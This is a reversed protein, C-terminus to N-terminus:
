TILIFIILIIVSAISDRYYEEMNADLTEGQSISVEVNEQEFVFRDEKQILHEIIIIDKETFNFNAIAKKNKILEEGNVKIRKTSNTSIKSIIKIILFHSIQIM